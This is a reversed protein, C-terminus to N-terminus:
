YLVLPVQGVRLRHLLVVYYWRSEPRFVQSVECPIGRFRGSFHNGAGTSLSDNPDFVLYVYTDGAGSFGWGDWDVHKLEEAGTRPSALVKAKYDKSWLLWRWDSRVELSHSLLAGFAACYIILTSLIFLRQRGKKRIAFIVLIIAAAPEVVIPYFMQLLDDGFIVLALLLALACVAGYVPLRWSFRDERAAIWLM